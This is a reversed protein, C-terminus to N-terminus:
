QRKAFKALWYKIAEQWVALNDSGQCLKLIGTDREDLGQFDLKTALSKIQELDSLSACAQIIELNKMEQEEEEKEAQEWANKHELEQAEEKPKELRAKVSCYVFIALNAFGYLFIVALIAFVIGAWLGTQFAQDAPIKLGSVFFINAEFLARCLVFGCMILPVLAKSLARWAFYQWGETSTVLKGDRRYVHHSHIFRHEDWHSFEESERDM